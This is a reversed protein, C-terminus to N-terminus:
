SFLDSLKLENQIIGSYKNQSLGSATIMTLRVSKQTGTEDRFVAIKNTLEREYKATISFARKSFKMECLNFVNDSRDILLDIQAGGRIKESRWSVARSDVGSIGLASKIQPLHNLCLIEFAYGAWSDHVPSSISDLWFHESQYKNKQIFRFYFLLFPDIIQYLSTKKAKSVPLYERIFGCTQLEDLMQTLGGNNVLGTGELIDLRSLGIGKQSLIEIIKIYNTSHKFLSRMMNQYEDALFAGTSFFLTDINQAVSLNKKMQKMYFPVGGMVMYCEAIERQSYGFKFADFFMKCERLTFPELLIKRTLRNHLGGRSNVLENIMWSTASGCAILKIDSRAAAWSNWFHELANIFKSRPTDFWPMEDIFVVKDGCPLTELYNQLADFAYLWNKPVPNDKQSYKNLALTFNILQDQMSVNDIGTMFFAFQNNFFRRVLYTKGIRRRGYVAVFESQQSTKVANLIERERERGILLEEM